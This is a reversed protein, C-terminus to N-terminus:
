THANRGDIVDDISACDVGWGRAGGGGERQLPPPPVPQRGPRGAVRDDTSSILTKTCRLTNSVYRNKCRLTHQKYMTSEQPKIDDGSLGLWWAGRRIRSKLTHMQAHPVTRLIWSM